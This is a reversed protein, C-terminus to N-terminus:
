RCKNEQVVPGEIVVTVNRPVRGGVGTKVNGINIDSCGTSSFGGGDESEESRMRAKTRAISAADRVDEADMVSVKGVSSGAALGPLTFVALALGLAPLRTLTSRISTNM